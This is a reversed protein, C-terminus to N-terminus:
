PTGTYGQAYCPKTGCVDVVHGGVKLFESKQVRSSVESRPDSHPDRGSRPPTNTTPPPPVGSDWVV